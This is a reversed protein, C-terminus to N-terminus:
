ESEEFHFDHLVSGNVCRAERCSIVAAVATRILVVRARGGVGSERRLACAQELLRWLERGGVQLLRQEEVMPFSAQGGLAVSREVCAAAYACVPGTKAIAVMREVVDVWSLNQAAQAAASVAVLRDLLDIPDTISGRIGRNYVDGGLTLDRRYRWGGDLLVGSPEAGAATVGSSTGAGFAVSNTVVIAAAALDDEWRRDGAYEEVSSWAWVSEALWEVLSKLLEAVAGRRADRQVRLAITAAARKGAVPIFPETNDPNSSQGYVRQLHLLSLLLDRVRVGGTVLCRLFTHAGHIPKPASAPTSVAVAAAAVGIMASNTEISEPRNEDSLVDVLGQEGPLRAGFLCVELASKLQVSGALGETFKRKRHGDRATMPTQEAELAAQNGRFTSVLNM